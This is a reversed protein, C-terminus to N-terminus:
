LTTVSKARPKECTSNFTFTILALRIPLYSKKRQETELEDDSLADRGRKAHGSAQIQSVAQSDRLIKPDIHPLDVDAQNQLVGNKTPGSAHPRKDNANVDISGAGGISVQPVRLIGEIRVNIDGDPTDPSTARKDDGNTNSQGDEKNITSDDDDEEEEDDADVEVQQQEHWVLRISVKTVNGICPALVGLPRLTNV